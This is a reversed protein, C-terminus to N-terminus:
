KGVLRLALPALPRAVRTMLKAVPPRSLMMGGARCTFRRMDWLTKMACRLREADYDGGTALLENAVIEASRMALGMGEGGIPELAAAANGIPIIGAPWRREVAFRPLPSALWDGVRHADRMRWRLGRNEDLISVFLKELDGGVGKVRAAPVSMALNWRGNEIPALGVYHGKLTFLAIVHPDSTVGSFHAKVGLDGTPRRDPSIMGKGDAIIVMAPSLTRSRNSVLDRLLLRPPNLEIRECRAPQIVRAGAAAAERLLADDMARRSLGWMPRPLNMAAERGDPSVLVSRRLEAPELGKLSDHLRARVLVEIGLASLCEGCVKDRPFRHQEILTVDWGGRALMLAAISGAPGAGIITADPM